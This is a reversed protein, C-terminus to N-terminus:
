GELEFRLKEGPRLEAPERVSSSIEMGHETRDARIWIKEGCICLNKFEIHEWGDPLSPRITFSRFGTPRLGLIGETFIRLYLGSEASLQAQNGEPCSEVAYPVHGGLLRTRSYLRLLEAARGTEGSCFLGRLAYLTSRDWFTKDGSRTLLGEGVRLKDSLLADATGKAREFIGVTLPICIWSRLRKEERCYRYADYGEVNRGFYSEISERLTRAKRRYFDAEARRSMEDLLCSFSRLADYAICSTSLNARGSEFRNELEDSDSSVVGDRNIQSLTFDVCDKIAQAFSEALERDGTALLFRSAGCAYMASDGRDKAGHWIGDGESIISTILAKGPSIYKKYLTYSNVAQEFGTKYGLYGFLPNVYECQDNTWVAAYYGGGGPSHILGSKTKCISECARIKAFRCMANIEADPTEIRMAGDLERIFDMRAKLEADADLALPPSAEEVGCYFASAITREGAELEVDANQVECYLRYRKKMWGYRKPTLLTGDNNRVRIKVSKGGRNEATIRETLCPFERSTFLERIFSLQGCTTYIRLIGDFSFRVVSESLPSGDAELSVGRFNHGLSSHTLNPYCRLTPFVVHRMLLLGGDAGHGYSVISSCYFGSMEIHDGFRTGLRATYVVGNGDLRRPLEDRSREIRAFPAFVPERRPVAQGSLFAKLM